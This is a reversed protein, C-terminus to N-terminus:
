TRGRDNRDLRRTSRGVVIGERDFNVSLFAIYGWTDKYRYDWAVQQLRPFEMVESPPGILRLVDDRTLGPVIRYFRDDTLVQEIGQMKGDRGVYVMFTDTGLPGRPYVLQRSGDPNPLDLAPPGMTRQVEELSSTGPRLGMGDYAACAAILPVLVAFALRMAGSYVARRLSNNRCGACSFLGAECGAKGDM